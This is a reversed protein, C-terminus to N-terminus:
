RRGPLRSREWWPPEALFRGPVRQGPLAPPPLPSTIVGPLAAIEPDCEVARLRLKRGSRDAVLLAYDPLGQLVTPEVAYEYVRQSAQADSWSTGDARSWNTGRSRSTSSGTTATRGASQSSSSLPGGAPNGSWGSTRATSTSVSTGYSDSTGRTTTGSAGKTATFSSMVFTHRRGIYSAAQEAEAHNGLRMFAATGGGLLSTADDRLHRFLLTLPVGRVECVDSLREAHARPVEDAGAIIVAPVPRELPGASVQVTLWQVLLSTMVESSASRAAPDMVLCTLRAPPGPWGGAAYSALDALVADLRTLSPMVQGRYAMPFLDGGILDVEESSLAAGRGAHGAAAQGLAAQVAASLRQPTVGRGALAQALLQAVRVDLSRDSRASATGAGGQAGGHIAEAIATALQGPSLEALLGSRGLDHPLRFGTAPVRAERATLMLLRGAHQGSLDALLVPRQALLSAGHVAILGQWGALTGGFVDTRPERVIESGWEPQGALRAAERVAHGAARQDWEGLLREYEQGPAAGHRRGRRLWCWCTYGLGPLCALCFAVALGTVHYSGDLLRLGGALVVGAIALGISPKGAWTWARSLAGDAAAAQSELRAAIAEPDPEPEPFPVALEGRDRFVWGLRPGPTFLPNRPQITM